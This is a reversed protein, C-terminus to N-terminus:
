KQNELYIAKAEQLDIKARHGHAALLSLLEGGSLLTLPKDKAFEYADPGYTATTVLIGKNAGENVVTGYLDRVASVGVVNTYRKAQIVIKGGRIPDPDFAVADVGGDRSAQTIKVEGGNKSFEEGFLERILNEFDQWDMAALNTRDDLTEAVAYGEVFRHDEKNITLIPRVPTLETLKSSAIGKLKRFCAKPEVQSLNIELFEERGAQVSLICGHTETGTAKDISQVWGNFVISKLVEAEDASYLEHITRLAIQYLVNDYTKKLWSESVPVEQFQQRSAVYKVEKIAPFASQDPLEFDVILVGSSQNFSLINGQPFSDPYTSHNLVEAFFYEVASAIGSKYEDRFAEIQAHQGMQETTHKTKALEWKSVSVAYEKLVKQHAANHAEVLRQFSTDIANCAALWSTRAEELAAAAQTTKRFRRESSFRDLFNFQPAYALPNPEIQRNPREPRDSEIPEKPPPLTFTTKDKLDEWSLVSYAIGVPLISDLADLQRQLEETRTRASEKNAEIDWSKQLKEQRARLASQMRAWRENWAAIQLNAKLDAEQQTAGRVVRYAKLGDHQVRVEWM